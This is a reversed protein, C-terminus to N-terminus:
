TTEAPNSSGYVAKPQVYGATAQQRENQANEVEPAWECINQGTTSLMLELKTPLPFIGNADLTFRYYRQYEGHFIWDGHNNAM